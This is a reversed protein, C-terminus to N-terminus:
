DPHPPTYVPQNWTNQSTLKAFVIFKQNLSLDQKLSVLCFFSVQHGAGVVVHMDMCVYWVLITSLSLSSTMCSLRYGMVEDVGACCMGVYIYMFWFSLFHRLTVNKLLAKSRTARGPFDCTRQSTATWKSLERILVELCIVCQKPKKFM